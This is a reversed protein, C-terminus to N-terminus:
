VKNVGLANRAKQSNTYPETKREKEKALISRCSESVSECPSELVVQLTSIYTQQMACRGPRWNDLSM